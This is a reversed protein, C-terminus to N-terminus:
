RHCSGFCGCGKIARNSPESFTDPNSADRWARVTWSGCGEIVYSVFAGPFAEGAGVIQEQGDYIYYGIPELMPLLDDDVNRLPMNWTLTALFALLM